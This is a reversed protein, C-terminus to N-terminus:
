EVDRIDDIQNEQQQYNICKKTRKKDSLGKIERKINFSFLVSKTSFKDIHLCRGDELDLISDEMSEALKDSSVREM